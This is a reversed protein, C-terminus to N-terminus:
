SPCARTGDPVSLKVSVPSAVAVLYQYLTESSPPAVNLLTTVTIVCVQAASDLALISVVSGRASPSSTVGASNLSRATRTSVPHVRKVSGSPRTQIAHM